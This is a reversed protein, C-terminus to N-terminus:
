FNGLEELLVASGSFPSETSSMGSCMTLSIDTSGSLSEEVGVNEGSIIECYLIRLYSFPYSTKVPM